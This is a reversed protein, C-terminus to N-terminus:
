PGTKGYSVGGLGEKELRYEERLLEDILGPVVDVV